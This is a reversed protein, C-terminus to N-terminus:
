FNVKFELQKESEVESVDFSFKGNYLDIVSRTFFYIVNEVDPLLETNGDLIPKINASDKVRTHRGIITLENKNEGSFSVSIRGGYILLKSIVIIGCALTQRIFSPIEKPTSADWRIEILSKYFYRKFIDTLEPTYTVSDAKYVIGYAVRYAQLRALSQKASDEMIDVAQNKIDISAMDDADKNEMLFDLGNSVASVPGSIDHTFRTLLLEAFRKPDIIKNLEIM